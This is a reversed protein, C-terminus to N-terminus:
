MSTDYLFPSGAKMRYVRQKTTAEFLTEFNNEGNMKELILTLDNTVYLQIEIELNTNEEQAKRIM